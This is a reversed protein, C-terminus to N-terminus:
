ITVGRKNYLSDFTLVLGDGFGGKRFEKEKRRAEVEIHKIGKLQLLRDVVDLLDGIENTLEEDSTSGQIEGAEEGIKQRLLMEFEEDNKVPRTTGRLLDSTRIRILKM